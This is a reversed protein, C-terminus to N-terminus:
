IRDVLDAYDTMSGIALFLPELPTRRRVRPQFAVCIEREYGYGSHM